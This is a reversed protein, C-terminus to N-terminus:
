HAATFGLPLQGDEPGAPRMAGMDSISGPIYEMPISYEVPLCFESAKTYGTYVRPTVETDTMSAAPRM